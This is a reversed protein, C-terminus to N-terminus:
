YFYKPYQYEDLTVVRMTFCIGLPLMGGISYGLVGKIEVL